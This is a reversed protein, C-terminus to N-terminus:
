CIPTAPAPHVPATEQDLRRWEMAKEDLYMPPELPHELIIVNDPTLGMWSFEDYGLPLKTIPKFEADM